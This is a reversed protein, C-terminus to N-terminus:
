VCAWRRQRWGRAHDPLQPKVVAEPFPLAADRVRGILLNTRAPSLEGQVALQGAPVGNLYLTLMGAGNHTAYVGAIHVWRKLPLPQATDPSPM